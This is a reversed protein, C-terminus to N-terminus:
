GDQISRVVETVFAVMREDTYRDPDELVLHAGAEAASVILHALLEPDLPGSARQRLGLEALVGIQEVLAGRAAAHQARAQNPLHDAAYLFSWTKPNARVAGFFGAIGLSAAAAADSLDADAPMASEIQEMGRQQERRLLAVLVEDVNAFAGYVVPKTVGYERAIAEMSVKAVGQTVAITLAVDLLEDRRQNPDMRSAYPRRPQREPM